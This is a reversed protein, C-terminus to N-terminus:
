NEERERYDLNIALMYKALGDQSMGSFNAMNQVSSLKYRDCNSGFDPYNHNKEQTEVWNIFDDFIQRNRVNVDSTGTDTMEYGVFVFSYRKYKFGCVDTRLTNDGVNPIMIRSGPYAEAREFYLYNEDLFNQVFDQMAKHKNIKM